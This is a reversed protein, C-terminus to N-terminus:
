LNFDTEYDEKDSSSQIVIKKPAHEPLTKPFRVTLLGHEMTAKVHEDQPLQLTCSFKGHPRERLIYGTDEIKKTEASVILRGDQINLEVDNKLFGPFEFTATVVNKEPNEHVDLRPEFSRISRAPISAFKCGAKGERLLSAGNLLREIEFYLPEYFFLSFMRSELTTRNGLRHTHNNSSNFNFFSSNQTTPESLQLCKYRKEFPRKRM